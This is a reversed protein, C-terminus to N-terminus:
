RMKKTLRVVVGQEFVADRMSVVRAASTEDALGVVQLVGQVATPDSSSFLTFEDGLGIGDDTGVDLFAVHGIDLLAATNAFGMLMAVDGGSVPEAYEGVSLDYAPMPGVFHGPQIRGYEKVIEGIVGGDIVDSVTLVGTPHVVRGVDEILHAVTFIQLREGVRAPAEMAVRIREFSRVSIGRSTGGASGEILGSHPPDGEFYTLRPASYVLDPPVALYQRAAGEVVGGSVLSTDRYFITPIYRPDPPPEPEPEPELDPEPAPQDVVVDTVEVTASPETGPIVLVQGPAILNPDAINARNAEWIRRWDFPDGYYQQALDWLTDGGVVTHSGQAQQALAIGPLILVALVAAASRVM